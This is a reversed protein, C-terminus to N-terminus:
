PKWNITYETTVNKPKLEKINKLKDDSVFYNSITSYNIENLM